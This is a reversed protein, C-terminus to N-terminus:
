RSDGADPVEQPVLVLPNRGVDQPFQNLVIQRREVPNASLFQRRRGAGRIRVGSGCGGCAGAHEREAFVVFPRGAPRTQNRRHGGMKQAVAFVACPLREPTRDTERKGNSCCNGM